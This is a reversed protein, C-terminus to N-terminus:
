LLSMMESRYLLKHCLQVQIKLIYMYPNWELCKWLGRCACCGVLFFFTIENKWLMVIFYLSLWWPSNHFVTLSRNFDYPIIHATCRNQKKRFWVVTTFLFSNENRRSFGLLCSMVCVMFIQLAVHLTSPNTWGSRRIPWGTSSATMGQTWTGCTTVLPLLLCPWFSWSGCCLTSSWLTSSTTSTPWTTLAAQTVRHVFECWVSMFHWGCISVDMESWKLYYNEDTAGVFLIFRYLIQYLTKLSLMSNRHTFLLQQSVIQKSELISRSKRTLPAEFSKVTVVEVVATNGYLSYVDEGFKLSFLLVPESTTLPNIVNLLVSDEFEERWRRCSLPWFPPPTGTSPRTKAM